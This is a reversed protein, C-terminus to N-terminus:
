IGFRLVKGTQGAAFVTNRTGRILDVAFLKGDTRITHQPTLLSRQDWFKVTGDMGTSVVLEEQAAVDTVIGQHAERKGCAAVVGKGSRGDVMRVAGDVASVIFCGSGDLSVVSTLPKGGSPITTKKTCTDACFVSTFGDWGVSVIDNARWLLGTVRLVGDTVRSAPINSVAKRKRDGHADNTNGLCDQALWLSGDMCGLAATSSGSKVSAASFSAPKTESTDM